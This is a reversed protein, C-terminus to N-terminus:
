RVVHQQMGSDVVPLVEFVENRNGILELRENFFQLM